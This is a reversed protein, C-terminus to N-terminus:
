IRSQLSQYVFLAKFWQARNEGWGMGWMGAVGGGGLFFFFFFLHSKKKFVYFIHALIEESLFTPLKQMAFNYEKKGM